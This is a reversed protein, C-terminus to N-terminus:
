RAAPADHLTRILVGPHPKPQFSTAKEPLLRDQMVSTWIQDLTPAPFLVTVQRGRTARDLAADLDHHYAIRQPARHLAPLTRHHFIEVDAGTEAADLGIVAWSRGNTAALTRPRLAALADDRGTQTWSGGTAAVAQRLDDIRVGQLTRHVARLRLPTDDHDVLMALGFDAHTGPRRCQDQLYAAYRHHGDAILARTPAWARNLADILNADRIPWIRHRQGGRDDYSWTPAEQMVRHLVRRVTEPGQQILLIPAPNLSMEEMREALEGAQRPHVGEHPLVAAASSTTARRTVDLAGVVGRVTVGSSTYEHLYLAPEADTLLDGRSVWTAVREAVARYPRAYLRASAPDGVRSGRLRLARFPELRLPGAVYAPTVVDASDM